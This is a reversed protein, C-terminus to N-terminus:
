SMDFCSRMAFSFQDASLRVFFPCFNVRYLFHDVQDELYM